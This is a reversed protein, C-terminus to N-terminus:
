ESSPASSPTTGTLNAQTILNDDANFFQAFEDHSGNDVPTVGRASLERNALGVVPPREIHAPLQQRIPRASRGPMQHHQGVDGFSCSRFRLKAVEQDLSRPDRGSQLCTEDGSAQEDHGAGLRRGAIEGCPVAALDTAVEIVDEGECVSAPPDHEPVDAPLARFGGRDGAEGAVCEPDQRIGLV